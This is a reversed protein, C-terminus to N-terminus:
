ISHLLRLCMLIEGERERERERVCVCVCVCVTLLLYWNVNGFMGRYAAVTIIPVIVEVIANFPIFGNYPSFDQFTKM